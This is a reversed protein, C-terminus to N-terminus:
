CRRLYNADKLASAQTSWIPQGLRILDAGFRELTSKVEGVAAQGIDTGTGEEGGFTADFWAKRWKCVADQLKASDVQVNKAVLYFSSRIAHKKRPKFLQVESVQNFISILEVSNWRDLKHLLMILTGGREMRQLALILQATTLRTAECGERYSARQSNPLVQGDCFVISYKRQIFPRSNSFKNFEPHTNPVEIVGFETSLMTIDMYQVVVRADKRGYSAIVKHGGDKQPLSIADVFATPHQRLLSATFGGPAMCLDLVRVPLDLCAFAETSAHIEDGIQVMMNFFRRCSKPDDDQANRRQQKFHEDAHPNAWGERKLVMLERFVADQELLFCKVANNPSSGEDLMTSWTCDQPKSIESEESIGTTPPM